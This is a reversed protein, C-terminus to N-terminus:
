YEELAWLGIKNERAKVQLEYFLEAYKSNPQITMIRAFGNKVLEANIFKGDLYVYALVRNYQDYKDLDFELKVTKNLILETLYNKAEIGYYGKKKKFRNRTEPTDIGILRIKVENRNEDYCYFTDGDIVKYVFYLDSTLSPNINEDISVGKRNEKYKNSGNSRKSSKSQCSIISLLLTIILLKRM